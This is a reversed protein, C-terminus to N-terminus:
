PAAATLPSTAVDCVVDFRPLLLPEHAAVLVTRDALWPEIAGAIVSITRSDLSATPEDLLLVPAPCLLARALAV